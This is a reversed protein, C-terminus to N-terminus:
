ETCGPVNLLPEGIEMAAWAILRWRDAMTGPSRRQFFTRQKRCSGTTMSRAFAPPAVGGDIDCQGPYDELCAATSEPALEGVQELAQCVNRGGARVGGDGATECIRREGCGFAAEYCCQAL